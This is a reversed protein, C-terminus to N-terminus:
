QCQVVAFVTGSTTNMPVPGGVYVDGNSVELENKLFYFQNSGCVEAAKEKLAVQLDESTSVINGYTTIKYRRDGLDEVPSYTLSCASLSFLLCLYPYRM